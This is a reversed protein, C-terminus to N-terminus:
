KAVADVIIVLMPNRWGCDSNYLEEWFHYFIIQRYTIISTNDLRCGAVPPPTQMSNNKVNRTVTAAPTTQWRMLLHSSLCSLPLLYGLPRKAVIFFFLLIGRSYAMVTPPNTRQRCPIRWMEKGIPMIAYAFKLQLICKRKQTEGNKIIASIITGFPRAAKPLMSMKCLFCVPVSAKWLAKIHLTNEDGQSSFRKASHIVFHPFEFCKRKM